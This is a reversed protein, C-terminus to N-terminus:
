GQGHDDGAYNFIQATAEAQPADFRAFHESSLEAAKEFAATVTAELVAKLVEGRVREASQREEDAAEGDPLKPILGLLELVQLMPGASFRTAAYLLVNAVKDGTWMHATAPGVAVLLEHTNGKWGCLQCAAPPPANGSVVRRTDFQLENGQCDPCFAVITGSM